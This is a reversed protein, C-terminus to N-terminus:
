QCDRLPPLAPSSPLRLRRSQAMHRGGGLNQNPPFLPQSTGAVGADIATIGPLQRRREEHGVPHLPPHVGSSLSRAYQVLQGLCGTPVEREGPRVLIPPLNHLGEAEKRLRCDHLLLPLKAGPLFIELCVRAVGATPEVLVLM